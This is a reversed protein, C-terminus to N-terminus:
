TTHVRGDIQVGLQNLRNLYLDALDTLKFVPSTEDDEHVEENHVVLETCVFFKEYDNPKSEGSKPKTAKNYLQVLCSTHYKAELAVLLENDEVLRACIRVCADLEFTSPDHLGERGAVKNCFFCTAEKATAPSTYQVRKM